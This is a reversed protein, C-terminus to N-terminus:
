QTSADTSHNLVITLMYKTANSNRFNDRIEQLGLSCPCIKIDNFTGRRNYM